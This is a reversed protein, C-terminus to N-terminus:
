YAELDVLRLAMLCTARGDLSGLTIGLLAEIRRLRYALSNRHIFLEECTRTPQTDNRLWIRLTPLLETSRQEDHLILPKLFRLATERAGRGAAAAVVSSLGLMPSLTPESVHKVLDLAHVLAIRLEDLTKAPSRLVLPLDPDVGLLRESVEAFEGRPLQALAFLRDDFEAVRVDGFSDHLARRLRWATAAYDGTMDAVLLSTDARQSLGLEQFSQAVESRTAESWSVCRGVFRM